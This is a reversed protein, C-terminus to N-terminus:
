LYSLEEDVEESRWKKKVRINYYSSHTSTTSHSSHPCVMTTIDNRNKFLHIERLFNVTTKIKMAIYVNKMSTSYKVYIYIKKLKLYKEKSGELKKCNM